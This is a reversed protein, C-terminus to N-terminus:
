TNSQQVLSLLPSLVYGISLWTSPRSVVKALRRAEGLSALLRRLSIQLQHRLLDSAQRQEELRQLWSIHM